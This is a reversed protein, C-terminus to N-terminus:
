KKKGAPPKVNDAEQLAKKLLENVDDPLEVEEPLGPIAPGPKKGPKVEPKAAAPPKEKSAKPELVVNKPASIRVEAGTIGIDFYSLRISYMEKTMGLSGTNEELDTGEEEKWGEKAFHDRLKRLAAPGSGKALTFELLNEEDHEV